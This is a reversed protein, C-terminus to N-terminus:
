GDADTNRPLFYFKPFFSFLFFAGKASALSSESRRLPFRDPEQLRCRAKGAQTISRRM